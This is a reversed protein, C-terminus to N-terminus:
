KRDGYLTISVAGNTLETIQYRYWNLEIKDDELEDSIQKMGKDVMNEYSTLNSGVMNQFRSVIDMIFNKSVVKTITITKNM